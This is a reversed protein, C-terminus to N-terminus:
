RHSVVNVITGDPDRVFFRRVGWPEDRLAYVIEAGAETMNAHVADVDGVEVSIDPQPGEANPGVLIVQATPNSPSAMTVVWGLDMVEEFGLQRYFNRSRELDASSLDPVVRRIM